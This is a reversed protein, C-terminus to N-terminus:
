FKVILFLTVPIAREFSDTDTESNFNSTNSSIVTNNFLDIVTNFVRVNEKKKGKLFYMTAETGLLIKETIHYSLSFQPGGGFITVKDTVTSVSSDVQSGLNVVTVNTTKDLEHSGAFDLSVGGEFRRGLMFKKEVGVRYDFKEVKTERNIPVLKDVTRDYEYGFGAHAGWGNSKSISYVLFYPNDIETNNESFNFLQRMLENAQVGVYHNYKKKVIVSDTQAQCQVIFAVTCFASVILKHM